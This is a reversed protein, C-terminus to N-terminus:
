IANNFDEPSVKSKRVAQGVRVLKDIHEVSDLQQVAEPMIDSLGGATLGQQSLEANDGLYTCLKPSAPGKKGIVSEVERNPYVRNFNIEVGQNDEKVGFLMAVFAHLRMCVREIFSPPQLGEHCQPHRTM